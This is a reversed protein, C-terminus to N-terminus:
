VVEFDVVVPAHDSPLQGKRANRDIVCWSSRVRPTGLVLDIRMGRGQHFDGARYDWWSFMGGTDYHRRFVDDFGWAQLAALAEREPPTVHTEGEFKAPDYVDRDDAAVNFDGAIVVADSPQATAAVHARLRELWSLKYLYHEHGVARGNPVYVSHVRLDGCTASILRADVDPEIGVAFGAQVDAIGLRSLIAVGNWQGQGHHAADYGLGSFTLAPFAADAVKTEQLCVIDPQVETLWEELRTLRVKLSNINWTALRM